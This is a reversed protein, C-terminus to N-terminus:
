QLSLDRKLCRIEERIRALETEKQELAEIIAKNNENWQDPIDRINDTKEINVLNYRTRRM